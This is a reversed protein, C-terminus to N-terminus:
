KKAAASASATVRKFFQYIGDDGMKRANALEGEKTAYLVVNNTSIIVVAPIGKEIPVGYSKAVDLNKDFHGVDVKVIKFDREFLPASAGKRMSWDLSKCDGCWNGGFVVIVPIKAAAAQTLAQKIDLKADASENYISNAANAAAALIVFLLANLIKM